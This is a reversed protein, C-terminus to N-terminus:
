VVKLGYKEEGIKRWTEPLNKSTHLVVNKPLKNYRDLLEFM